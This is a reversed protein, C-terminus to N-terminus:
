EFLEENDISLQPDDLQDEWSSRNKEYWRITKILGSSISINSTWQLLRKAKETSSLHKMVQGPRDSTFIIHSDDLDFYALIVNAIDLISTEQGTGCNIVENHISSFPEVHLAADVARASDTAHIWDRVQSGDGHITIKQGSIAQTIFKGVVKEIHQGPGYNNFFRITIVPVDYTVGYAYVMRDAAVKAAAYPSRPKLLHKEDIIDGECTGYTESSSIHVFRQVSSRYKKLAQLMVRTGMVNSLFFIEDDQISRTVDSEAAYHVVMDSREMLEDVLKQDCINGHHFEFRDSNRIHEQINTVRASYTLADLVIFHYDPHEEYMYNVFNSGIFGAGGTVLVTTPRDEAM